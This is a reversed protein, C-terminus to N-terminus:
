GNTKEEASIRPQWLKGEPGCEGCKSRMAEAIWFVKFPTAVCLRAARAQYFSKCDECRREAKPAEWDPELM